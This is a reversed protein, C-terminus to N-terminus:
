IWFNLWDRPQMNTCNQFYSFSSSSRLRWIRLSDELTTDVHTRHLGWRGPNEIEKNGDQSEKNRNWINGWWARLGHVFVLVDTIVILVPVLSEFIWSPSSTSRGRPPRGYSGQELCACLSSDSFSGNLVNQSHNFLSPWSMMEARTWIPDLSYSETLTWFDM